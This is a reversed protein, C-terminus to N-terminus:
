HKTALGMNEEIKEKIKNVNEKDTYFIVLAVKSEKDISDLKTAIEDDIVSFTGYDLGRGMPLTYATSSSNTINDLVIEENAELPKNPVFILREIKKEGKTIATRSKKLITNLKLQDISAFVELPAQIKMSENTLEIFTQYTSYDMPERDFTFKFSGEEIESFSDSLRKLDRQILYKTLPHTNPLESLQEAKWLNVLLSDDSIRNRTLLEIRKDIDLWINLTTVALFLLIGTSITAAIVRFREKKDVKLTVIIGIIAWVLSIIIAISINTPVQGILNSIM